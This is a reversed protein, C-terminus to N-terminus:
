PTMRGLIPIPVYQAGLVPTMPSTVPTTSPTALPTMPPGGYVQLPRNRFVTEMTTSAFRLSAFESGTQFSKVLTVKDAVTRNHHAYKELMRVYGNDHCGALLVRRCSPSEAFQRFAGMLKHDARDKGKGVLVFDVMDDAQSFGRTFRSVMDQSDARSTMGAKSLLYALGEGSAFAKVIIPLGALSADVSQLYARVAARLDVAAREGGETPDEYYKEDFLYADADADILVLAFASRATSEELYRFKQELEEAHQQAHRGAIRERELDRRVDSYLKSLNFLRDHFAKMRALNLENQRQFDGVFDDFDGPFGPIDDLTDARLSMTSVEQVAHQVRCLGCVWLRHCLIHSVPFHFFNPHCRTSCAWFFFFSSFFAM